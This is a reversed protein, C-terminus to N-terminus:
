FKISGFFLNFLVTISFLIIGYKILIVAASAYNARIQNTLQFGCAAYIMEQKAKEEDGSIQLIYKAGYAYKTKAELGHFGFMTGLLFCLVSLFLITSEILNFPFPIHSFRALVANTYVGGIVVAASLIATFKQLKDDLHRAREKETELYDKLQQTKLKRIDDYTESTEWTKLEKELNSKIRKLKFVICIDWKKIWKMICM